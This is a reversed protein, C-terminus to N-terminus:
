KKIFRKQAIGSATTLEVVYVGTALDKIPIAMESGHLQKITRGHIDLVRISEIAQETTINVLDTAPNPYLDFDFTAMKSDLAVANLNSKETGHSEWYLNLSKTKTASVACATNRISHEITYDGQTLTTSYTAYSGWGTNLIPAWWGVRKIIWRHEVTIPNTEAILNVTTSTGTGGIFNNVFDPNPTPNTVSFNLVKEDWGTCPLTQVALKVQYTKGTQFSVSFFDDLDYLTNIAGAQWGGGAVYSLGSPTVEWLDIWHRSENSSAFGNLFVDEGCLFSTKVTGSADEFHFDPVAIAGQATANATGTATCGYHDTITVSYNTSQQPNDVLIETTSGTNWTYQVPEAADIPDAWVSVPEGICFPTPSAFVKVSPECYDPITQPLGVRVFQRNYVYDFTANAPWAYNFPTEPDLGIVGKGYVALYLMKDEQVVGNMGLTRATGIKLQGPEPSGAYTGTLPIEKESALIDSVSGTGAQLDYFVFKDRTIKGLAPNFDRVTVYLYRKSPSLCVGYPNYNALPLVKNPTVTGTAKDFDTIEVFGSVNTQPNYPDNSELEGYVAAVLTTYDESFSLQGRMSYDRGAATVHSITQLSNIGPNIGNQDVLYSIYNKGTNSTPTASFDHTIVWYDKCNAHRAVALKETNQGAPVLSNNTPLSLSASYPPNNQLLIKVANIGYQNAESDGATFIYYEQQNGPNPAVVAAHTASAGGKLPFLGNYNVNFSGSGRVDIGNTGFLYNGNPDAVSACGEHASIGSQSQGFYPSNNGSFDAIIYEGFVWYDDQQNNCVQAFSQVNCLGILLLLAAIIKLKKNVSLM